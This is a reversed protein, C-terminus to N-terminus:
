QWLITPALEQWALLLAPTRVMLQPPCGWCLSADVVPVSDADFSAAAAGVARRGSGMGGGGLGTQKTGQGAVGEGHQKPPATQGYVHRAPPAPSVDRQEVAADPAAAGGTAAEMRAMCALYARAGADSDAVSLSASRSIPPASPPADAAVPYATVSLEGSILKIGPVELAQASPTRSGMHM